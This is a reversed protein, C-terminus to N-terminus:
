RTRRGNPRQSARRRAGRRHRRVAQGGADPAPVRRRVAQLHLPGVISHVGDNYNGTLVFTDEDEEVTAYACRNVGLHQGLAKAATFTIEEADTLPRVADDLDILFRDRAETRKRQSIDRAMKSAGVIRGERDRIPSVTLAVDISRGM